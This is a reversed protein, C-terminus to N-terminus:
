FITHGSLYAFILSRSNLVMWLLIPLFCLRLFNHDFISGGPAPVLTRVIAQSVSEVISFPAVHEHVPIFHHRDEVFYEGARLFYWNGPLVCLFVIALAIAVRRLNGKRDVSCAAIICVTLLSLAFFSIHVYYSLAIALVLFGGSLPKRDCFGKMFILSAIYCDVGLMSDFQCHALFDGLYIGVWSCSFYIAWVASIRQNPFWTRVCYYCLLPFALITLFVFVNFGVHSGFILMWPAGFLALNSFTDYVSPYGGLLSSNWGYMGGQFFMELGQKTFSYLVPADDHWIYSSFSPLFRRWLCAVIFGYGIIFASLPNCIRNMVRPYFTIITLLIAATLSVATYHVGFDFELKLLLFVFSIWCACELWSITFATTRIGPLEMRVKM